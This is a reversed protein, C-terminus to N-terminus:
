ARLKLWCYSEEEADARIWFREEEEEEDEEEEEEVERICLLLEWTRFVRRTKSSDICVLSCPREAAMIGM